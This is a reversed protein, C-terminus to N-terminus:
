SRVEVGWYLWDYILSRQPRVGESTLLKYCSLFTYILIMIVKDDVREDTEMVDVNM